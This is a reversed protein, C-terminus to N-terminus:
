GALASAIARLRQAVLAASEPREAPRKALLSLVLEALSTPVEAGCGRPDPPASYRHHHLPDGEAFPVQGTLLEFLTGGLAYLDARGDIAGGMAQEPAMYDPTGGILSGKRRVEAVIKAVGFDMLKVVRESTVFLNAPKVDRHVIGRAHAYALGSAVQEGLWAASRPTFRGRERLISAVSRGELLEMTLFWGGDDSDVDFLTVINPHNLRAASRAERLLMEVRTPEDRLSEPLRKLAVERDLRKDRARYVVGMSGRGLEGLIEYRGGAPFPLPEAMAAAVAAAVLPQTGAAGIPSPRSGRRAVTESPGTSAAGPANLAPTPPGSPAIASDVRTPRGSRRRQATLLALVLGAALALGATLAARAAASPRTAIRGRRAPDDGEAEPDGTAGAAAQDTGSADLTPGGGSGTVADETSPLDASTADRAAPASSDPATDPAVEQGADPEADSQAGPDSPSEREPNAERAASVLSRRIARAESASRARLERLRARTARGLREPWLLPDSSRSPRGAEALRVAGTPPPAAEEHAPAPRPVAAVLLAALLAPPVLRSLTRL